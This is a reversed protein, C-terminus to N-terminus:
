KSPKVAQKNKAANAPICGHNLALGSLRCITSNSFGCAPERKQRPRQADHRHTSKAPPMSSRPSALLPLAPKENSFLCMAAIVRRAAIAALPPANATISPLKCKAPPKLGALLWIPKLAMILQDSLTPLTLARQRAATAVMAAIEAIIIAKHQNAPGNAAAKIGQEAAESRTLM